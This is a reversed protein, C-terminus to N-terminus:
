SSAGLAFAAAAALALWLLDLLGFASVFTAPETEEQEAAPPVIRLEEAMERTRAAKEEESMQNWRNVAESWVEPPFHEQAVAESPTVGEPWSLSRGQSELEDAVDSAIPAILLSEDIEAMAAAREAVPSTLRWLAYKAGFVAVLAILVAVVGALPGGTAARRRVMRRRVKDFYAIESTGLLRVGLGALLGVALAAYGAERGTFYGAATWATAGLLGGLAGGLLMKPM